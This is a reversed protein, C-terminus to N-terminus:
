FIIEEILTILAEFKRGDTVVLCMCWRQLRLRVLLDAEPDVYGLLRGQCRFLAVSALEVGFVEGGGAGNAMDSISMPCVLSWPLVTSTLLQMLMIFLFINYKVLVESM